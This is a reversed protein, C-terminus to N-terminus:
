GGPPTAVDRLLRKVEMVLRDPAVPKSLFNDILNDSDTPVMGLYDSTTISSVVLIPLDHLRPNSRIQWSADWGDLIGEMMIDLIVLDPPNALMATLAERGSGTSRVSFGEKELVMRTVEVFDPDDDVVMVRPTGLDPVIWDYRHKVMDLVHATKASVIGPVQSLRHALFSALDDDSAFAAEVVLDYEGTVRSVSLVEPMDGILALARELGSLETTLFFMARTHYGVLEPEVLGRITLVQDELLRDIRKRVTGESVGLERAIEVNSRRGNTALLALIERDTQDM